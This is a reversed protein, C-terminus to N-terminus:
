EERLCDVPSLRAAKMVAPAFAAVISTLLAAVVIWLVTGADTSVPIEKFRYVEPALIQKGILDSLFRVVDDLHDSLSLGIFVGLASGIMGLMGGYATFVFVLRTRSLGMSRLIGIDRTKEVVMLYVIGLIAAAAVLIIFFLIVLMIRKQDDIALLEGRNAQEWSLCHLNPYRRSLDAAIESADAANAVRLHISNADLSNKPDDFRLRRLTGRDVYAFLKDYDERGTSYCGAVRFVQTRERKVAANGNERVLDGTFLTVFGGLRTLSVGLEKALSDGLIISPYRGRPQLPDDRDARPVALDVDAVRDFLPGFTTVKKEKEFDIGILSAGKFRDGADPGLDKGGVLLAAAAMRPAMAVIKKDTGYEDKLLGHVREWHGDLGDMVLRHQVRIDASTGKFHSRIFGQVGDMLGTVVIMAAVGIMIFLVAVLAITRTRLYRM